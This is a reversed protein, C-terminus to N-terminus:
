GGFALVVCGAFAGLWGYVLARAVEQGRAALWADVGGLGLGGCIAAPVALCLVYATRAGGWFPYLLQAQVLSFGFAVPMAALLTELSRRGLDSGRLASAVLRGWGLVLAAAAPLALLYGASMYGYDFHTHRDALHYVAPPNGDGFLSAYVADGLSRFGSLFPHRLSDGFGTFYAATHFGPQQWYSLAGPVDLNWVLPDGFHLWNRVYVWGALAAAGALIGGCVAAVRAPGAREAVVLKLGVISVVLVTLLLATYKTLAALGLVLALLLVPGPRARPTLLVGSAALLASGALLAFLPENSVYASAYVHLPLLGATLVSFAATRPDGPRLRRALAWAVLAFSLGCAFSPLKLALVEARSGPAAGLAASLGASLAYFLPPHYMAVGDSALPLTGQAVRRVYEIHYRADYGVEPDLALSCPWFVGGWLLAVLVLAAEPARRAARAPLFRRAAAFLSASTAFLALLLPARERLSAAPTPQRLSEAFPRTDDAVVAPRPAGGETSARWSPDTAVLTAPGHLALLLLAPARESRVAARLENRGAALRGSVEARCPTKFCARDGQPLPVPAGNLELRVDGLARVSVSANAPVERLEFSRTFVTPPAGGALYTDLEVPYARSIWQADGTRAVFPVEPARLASALFIAACAILAAVAGCVQIRTM